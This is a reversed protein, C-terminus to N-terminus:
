ESDSMEIGANKLSIGIRSQEILSYSRARRDGIQHRDPYDTYGEAGGCIAWSSVATTAMLLDIWTLTSALSVAEDPWVRFTLETVMVVAGACPVVVTSEAFPDIV